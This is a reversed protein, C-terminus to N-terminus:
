DDSTTGETRPQKLSQVYRNMRRGEPTRFSAEISWGQSQYFANVADNNDADTTLMAEAAGRAAAGGAWSRLLKRGLGTGQAEPHVCISSLLAADSRDDPLGGRYLVARMLRPLHQPNRMGFFASRRAFGWLRRRLLRGFFGSPETSGVAAGLVTGKSDVAVVTVATPENLFGGYFEQLFGEGLQSLFFTPFSTRHLRAIQEVHHRQLPVMRVAPGEATDNAGAVLRLVEEAQDTTRAVSFQRQYAGAALQGMESLGARGKQIMRNIGRAISEPDRQEVGLGAGSAEVIDVVDGRAAVLAATGSALIAQTKSPLTYPTLPDDVLSIYAIDATAMLDPMQDPPVRGIFKVAPASAALRRLEGEHNGGGAMLVTIRDPDLAASACMLTGLGQAAGMAGAYLLVVHHDPIGWRERIDSGLQGFVDENAPKPIYHIKSPAVGREALLPGVSPAIHVVADSGRYMANVWADLIPRAVHGALGGDAFGSVTVTDPWLDAVETVVPTGRLHRQLLMPLAVTIPSYNVWIVDVDKLSNWGLIAASLGFSAYNGLRRILSADHSPFLYTRTVDVGDLNERMKARLAYGEAVRGSPYNPFGTLVHVSHGRSVLERALVAPLAAPGTEPDYWQTIM